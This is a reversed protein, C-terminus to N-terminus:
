SRGSFLIDCSLAERKYGGLERGPEQELTGQVAAIAGRSPYRDQRLAAGLDELPLAPYGAPRLPMIKKSRYFIRM